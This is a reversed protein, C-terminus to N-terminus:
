AVKARRERREQEIQDLTRRVCAWAHEIAGLRGWEEDTNMVRGEYTDNVRQLAFLFQTDLPAGMSIQNGACLTMMAIGRTLASMMLFTTDDLELTRQIRKVDRDPDNGTEVAFDAALSPTFPYMEDLRERKAKYQAARLFRRAELERKSPKAAPSTQTKLKRKM